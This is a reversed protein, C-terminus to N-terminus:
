LGSPGKGSTDKRSVVADCADKLPNTNGFDHADHKLNLAFPKDLARAVQEAVEESLTMGNSCTATAHYVGVRQQSRGYVFQASAQNGAEDTFTTVGWNEGSSQREVKGDDKKSDSM